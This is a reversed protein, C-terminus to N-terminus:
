EGEQIGRKLGKAVWVGINAQKRSESKEKVWHRCWGFMAEAYSLYREYKKCRCVTINYKEDWSRICHWCNFCVKGTEVSM